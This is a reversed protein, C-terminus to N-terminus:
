WYIMYSFTSVFFFHESLSSSRDLFSAPASPGPHAGALSASRLLSLLEAEEALLEESCCIWLGERQCRAKVACNWSRGRCWRIGDAVSASRQHIPIATWVWKQFSPLSKVHCHSELKCPHLLKRPCASKRYVRVCFVFLCGAWNVSRKRHSQGLFCM